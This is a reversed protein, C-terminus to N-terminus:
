CMIWNANRQFRVFFSNKWSQKPWEILSPVNTVWVCAKSREIAAKQVPAFLLNKRDKPQENQHFRYKRTSPLVCKTVYQLNCRLNVNCCIWSFRLSSAISATHFKAVKRSNGHMITPLGYTYKCITSVNKHWAWRKRNQWSNISLVPWFFQACCICPNRVCANCRFFGMCHPIRCFTPFLFFRTVM